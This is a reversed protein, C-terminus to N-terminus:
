DCNEQAEQRSNQAARFFDPIKVPGAVVDRGAFLIGSRDAKVYWKVLKITGASIELATINNHHVCSGDNFYMPNGPSPFVPRHTHGAIIMKGRNVAWDSLRGEVTLRRRENKSASTPDHFGILELPRWLHRVLFRALKWFTSNLLDAQHGHVAFINEGAYELVLGERINLGELLPVCKKLQADYRRYSIKGNVGKVIDHNGFIMILRGARNFKALLEFVDKHVNLIPKLRTNEWLEDGDGIEIYTYNQDYYQNLAACYVSQNRAFNDALSGDSRHCDSMFVIRSGASIKLVDSSEFVRDLRKNYGM